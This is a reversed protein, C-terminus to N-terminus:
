YGVGAPLFNSDCLGISTAMAMEEEETRLIKNTRLDITERKKETYINSEKRLLHLQALYHLYKTM